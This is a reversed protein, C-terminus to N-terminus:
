REFAKDLDSLVTTERMYAEVRPTPTLLFPFLARHVNRDLVADLELCVGDFCSREQTWELETALRLLFVSM